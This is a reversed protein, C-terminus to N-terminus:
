GDNRETRRYELWRQALWWWLGLRWWQTPRSLSRRYEVSGDGRIVKIHAAAAGGMAARAGHRAM